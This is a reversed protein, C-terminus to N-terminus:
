PRKQRRKHGLAEVVTLLVNRDSPDIELCLKLFDATKIGSCYEDNMLREVAENASNGMLYDVSVSFYNAMREMTERSPLSKGKEYQSIAGPSIYLAKALERQTLHRRQRLDKIIESFM